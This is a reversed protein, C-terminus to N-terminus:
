IHENTTPTKPRPPLFNILTDQMIRRYELIDHDSWKTTPAQQPAFYKLFVNKTCFPIFRGQNDKEIVIRRKTVFLANGYGRNTKSDLLTLNGIDNKLDASVLDEGSLSIIRQYLPDFHGKERDIFDAIQQALEQEKQIGALDLLANQLWIVQDARKGLDNETASDIHEVDWSIDNKNEDKKKKYAEFPFRYTLTKQQAKRVIYELNFMLLFKLAHPNGYKLIIIPQVKTGIVGPQWTMSTFVKKIEKILAQTFDDKTLIDKSKSLKVLDMINWGENILFGIYHYWVPHDYWQKLTDFLDRVSQWIELLGQHGGKLGRLHNFYRFTADKDTGTIKELVKPESEEEIARRFLLNFIFSIRSSYDQIGNNLFWWFADDQLSNEIHDWDQAIELQKLGALQDKGFNNEQLFLAKILEASSLSIKGLNIRIFTDIPNATPDTLEYWIVQLTGEPKGDIPQYVLTKIISECLDAFMRGKEQQEEFWEQIHKYARSIHYFDINEKSEPTLSDLFARSSPRTQYDLEFLRKNYMRELPRGMLYEDILYRLLIRITTLRQQGDILEYGKVTEEDRQWSGAKVIVPQLCYFEKESKGRKLAFGYIDDLLDRVQNRTWRYGRQYCPIYFNEGLLESIARLKISNSM